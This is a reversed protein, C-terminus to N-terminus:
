TEPSAGSWVPIVNYGPVGRVSVLGMSVLARVRPPISSVNDFDGCMVAVLAATLAPDGLTATAAATLERLVAQAAALDDLEAIMDRDVLRAPVSGGCIRHIHPLAQALAQVEGVVRDLEAAELWDAGDAVPDWGSLREMSPVRPLGAASGPAIDRQEEARPALERVAGRPSTAADLPIACPGQATPVVALAFLHQPRSLVGKSLVWSTVPYAAVGLHRLLEVVLINLEYCVGRGLYADDGSAHLLHLHHNGRGARLSARAAQVEARDMFHLDYLYRRQVLEQALFALRWPELRDRRCRDLWRRIEGPLESAAVTPAPVRPLGAWDAGAATVPPPEYLDVSYRVVAPRRGHLCVLLRGGHGDDDLLEIRTDPRDTEDLMIPGALRGYLPLPLQSRGPVIRGVFDVSRGTPRCADLWQAIPLAGQSSWASSWTQTHADLEIGIGLPAYVWPRPLSPPTFGVVASPESAAIEDLARPTVWLQPPIEPVPALCNADAGAWSPLAVRAPELAGGGGLWAAIRQWLRRPEPEGSPASPAGAGVNAARILADLDPLSESAVDTATWVSPQAPSDGRQQGLRKMIDAHVDDLEDFDALSLDADVSAAHAGAGPLAPMPLLADEAAAHWDTPLLPEDDPSTAPGTALSTALLDPRVDDLTRASLLTTLADRLPASPSSVGAADLLRLTAREAHAAVTQPGATAAHLGALVAPDRWRGLDAAGLEGAFRRRLREGLGYDLIQGIREALHDVPDDARDEAAPFHRRDLYVDMAERSRLPLLIEIMDVLQDEGPGDYICSMLGLALGTTHQRPSALVEADVLLEHADRDYAALIDARADGVGDLHYQVRLSEIVRIPRTTTLPALLEDSLWGDAALHERQKRIRPLVRYLARLTARLRQIEATWADTVDRGSSADVRVTFASRLRRIGMLDYFADVDAREEGASRAVLYFRGVDEFRQELTPTDSRFVPPSAATRIRLTEGPREGPGRQVCLIVPLTPEIAAQERGLLGYCALLMHRLAPAHELTARDGRQEVEAAIERLFGIVNAADPAGAIDVLQCLRPCEQYGREWSGRRDGFYSVAWAGIVRSHHFYREQAWIWTRHELAARLRAPDLWGGGLGQEMWQYARFPLPTGAAICADIHGLVHDLEVADIHRLGLKGLLADGLLRVAEVDPYLAASSGILAEVDASWQFLESPPRPCGTGDALWAATGLPLEDLIADGVLWYLRGCIAALGLAADRSLHARQMAARVREVPPETAVGLAILLRHTAEPYREPSPRPYRAHWVAAVYPEIQPAPILLEGPQRFVGHEDEVPLGHPGQGGLLARIDSATHDSLARALYGIIAAARAREGERVVRHYAAIIHREVLEDVGPSGAGLHRALLGLVAEPIEAGPTWDIGLDPLDPDIVLEMASLLTGRDTPFLRASALLALCAPDSFIHREHAVLWDYLRARRDAAHLVPHAAAAQPAAGPGAGAMAELVRAPALASLGLATVLAEGHLAPHLVEHCLPLGAIVAATGGDCVALAGLRLTGAGDVLPVPWREQGHARALAPLDALVLALVRRVRDISCLLAPQDALPRGVRGLRAALEAVFSALPRPAVLPRLAQWSALAWDALAVADLAARTDDDMDGPECMALLPEIDVVADANVVAGARTEWICLDSLVASAPALGPRPAVPHCVALEGRRAVLLAHLARLAPPSQLAHRADQAVAEPVARMQDLLLDLDVPALGAARAMRALPAAHEDSAVRMGAALLVPQISPAALVVAGAAAGLGQRPDALVGLLGHQDLAIPAQMARELLARPLEHARAAIYSLIRHLNDASAVLPAGAPSAGSLEEGHRALDDILLAADARTLHADLALARILTMSLGDPDVFRRMGHGYIARLAPDAVCLAALPCVEGRDDLFVPITALRARVSAGVDGLRELLFRHVMSLTDASPEIRVPPRAHPDLAGVVAAVGVRDVGMDGVHRRAAVEADLFRVAPLLVVVPEDAPICVLAAGGRQAARLVGPRGARDPWIPLAALTHRLREPIEARIAELLAHLARLRAPDGLGLAEPMRALDEVLRQVDLAPVRLQALLAGPGQDAVAPALVPRANGYFALLAASTDGPEYLLVGQDDGAHMAVPWFRGDTSQWLPLAALRRQLPASATALVEAVILALREASGPLTTHALAPVPRPAQALAAELDQILTDVGLAVVGLRDWLPLLRRARMRPTPEASADPDLLTHVFPRLGQYIRQLAPTGRAVNGPRHLTGQDNCVLPLAALRAVRHRAQEDDEQELREIETLLLAYLRHLRDIDATRLFSPVDEDGPLAGDDVTALIRELMDILRASDLTHSGLHGLVEVARDDLMPSAVHLTRVQGPASDLWRAAIPEPGLVARLTPTTLVVERPTALAAKGVVPVVPVDAFARPLGNVIIHFVPNSLERALPLIAILGAAMRQLRQPPIREMDTIQRAIRALQGPVAALIWQNWTSDATIRERDVPVDFHGQIWFALGSREDTPLYSYITSADSGLPEPIGFSDLQVGVMIRTTDARGAERHGQTYHFEDVQLIYSRQWGDPSQRISSWQGHQERILHRGPGGPAAETLTIDITEINSLTFLVCPDLARAKEFLARPSRVPDDPARLPLVLVTGDRPVGPPRPGLAKPISVDAIEFHFVDSYVQPRDTVEFVSKFGVGFFGIQQKRKTTQGISTVGVLDRADFAAGDHWVVIRDRDFTVQWTRAGADEANQLLEVLFHGPDTYVRRALLEEANAQSVAKPANGLVAIATVAMQQRADDLAQVFAAGHAKALARLRPVDRAPVQALLEVTVADLDGRELAGCVREVVWGLHAAHAEPANHKVARDILCMSSLRDLTAHQLALVLTEAIAATTQADARHLERTLERLIQHVATEPQALLFDSFWRLNDQAHFWGTDRLQRALWALPAHDRIAACLALLDRSAEAGLATRLHELQRDLPLAAFDLPNM